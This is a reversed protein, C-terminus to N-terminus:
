AYTRTYTALTTRLTKSASSEHSTYFDRTKVRTLDGEATTYVITKIGVRRINDLCRACPASQTFTHTVNPDRNLRSIYLVARNM